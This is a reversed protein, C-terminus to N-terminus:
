QVERHIFVKTYAQKKKDFFPRLYLYIPIFQLKYRLGLSISHLYLILNCLGQGFSTLSLSIYAM